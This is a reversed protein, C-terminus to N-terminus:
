GKVGTPTGGVFKALGWGAPGFGLHLMNGLDGAADDAMIAGVTHNPDYTAGTWPTCWYFDVGEETVPLPNEGPTSTNKITAYFGYEASAPANNVLRDNSISAITPGGSGTVVWNSTGSESLLGNLPTDDAHLFHDFGFPTVLSSQESNLVMHNSTVNGSADTTAGSNGAITGVTGANPFYGIQYQPSPTVIGSGGGGGVQVDTLTVPHPYTNPPVGGSFM